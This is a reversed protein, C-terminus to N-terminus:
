HNKFHQSCFLHYAEWNKAATAYLSNLTSASDTTPARLIGLKRLHSISRDDQTNLARYLVNHKTESVGFYGGSSYLWDVYAKVPNPKKGLTKARTAENKRIGPEFIRFVTKDWSLRDKAYSEELKTLYRRAWEPSMETLSGMPRVFPPDNKASKPWKIECLFEENSHIPIRKTRAFTSAFRYAAKKSVEADVRYRKTLM